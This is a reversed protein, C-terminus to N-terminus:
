IQISKIIIHNIMIKVEIPNSFKIQNMCKYYNQSLTAINLLFDM